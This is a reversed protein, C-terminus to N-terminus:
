KFKEQKKATVFHGDAVDICKYTEALSGLILDSIDPTMHFNDGSDIIWNSLQFSDGFDRGPGEANYYM